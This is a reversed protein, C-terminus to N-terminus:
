HLQNHILLIKTLEEEDDDEDPIHFEMEPCCPCDPHPIHPPLAEGEEDCPVVHWFGNDFVTLWM